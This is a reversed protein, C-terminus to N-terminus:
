LTEVIVDPKTKKALSTKHVSENCLEENRTSLHSPELLKTSHGPSWNNILLLLSLREAYTLQDHIMLRHQSVSQFLAILDSYM